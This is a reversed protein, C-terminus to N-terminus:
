AVIAGELMVRVRTRARARMQPMRRGVCTRMHTNERERRERENSVM